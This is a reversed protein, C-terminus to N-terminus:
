EKMVPLPERNLFFGAAYERLAPLNQRQEARRHHMFDGDSTAESM